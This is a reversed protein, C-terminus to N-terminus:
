PTSMNITALVQELTQREETSLLVDRLALLTQRAAPFEGAIFQLQAWKLRNSPNGSNLDLSHRLAARAAALDKAALWRYDALWSWLMAQVGTDVSPNALAAAFLQEVDEKPLCLEGAVAMEKLGYLVTRDGPAFPTYQLRQTLADRLEAPPEHSTKCALHIQGLLAFKFYPNLANAQAYLRQAKAYLAAETPSSPAILSDLLRGADFQAQASQPHDEAAFLTRRVEDGFQYARLATLVALVGLVVATMPLMRLPVTQQGQLRAVLVGAPVWILGLLPLYNRHEHVLELPLLTSELAHGVFFWVIGLAALPVRRRLYWAALLLALLGLASPVTTWPTWWDVSVAIDDHYLALVSLRPFFVLGLYFWLVRGETMLREVLTFPRMQYGSWLWQARDSLLYALMILVCLGVLAALGKAFWDLRGVSARCLILEWALVYAPFLIGTEKSLMSLPWLLVWAVVLKALGKRGTQERGQIHLWFAVLLFFASLSTMRQVVHLVPLLQIPHLLWVAAVVGAVGLRQPAALTVYASALMRQMLGFILGGCLIHIVLNTAKFAFPNFGSVYHNLAFSLQAVPRGTPGAGGSFWAQRLGDWTLAHLQVGPVTLISPGDDFFFAGHLGSWYVALMVLLLLGVSLAVAKRSSVM